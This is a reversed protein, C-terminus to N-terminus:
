ELVDAAPRDALEAGGASLWRWSLWAARVIQGYMRARNRLGAWFGRHFESPPHHVGDLTIRLTRWGRCRAATSLATEVGYGCTARPCVQAWLAARLCRQGSLWPTLRHALDTNWRGGRFLGITMDAEGRQVPRLLAQVHRPQLDHLDADLFLVVPTGATALGTRMAQGKGRNHPHRVVRLRPDEAALEEAVAATRDASGDDVVVVQALEPVQRLVRLVGAIHDAENYAPVVAAVRNEGAGLDAPSSPM